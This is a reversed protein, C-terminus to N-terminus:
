VGVRQPGRRWRQHAPADQQLRPRDEPLLPLARGRQPGGPGPAPGAAAPRADGRRQALVARLAAARFRWLHRRVAPGAGPRERGGAVAPHARRQAGRGPVPDPRVESQTPGGDAPSGRSQAWPAVAEPSGPGRPDPRGARTPGAGPEPDPAPQRLRRDLLIRRRRQALIAGTAGDHIGGGGPRSAAQGGGPRLLAGAPIPGLEGAERPRRGLGKARVQLGAAAVLGQGRALTRAADAGVEEQGAGGARRRPPRRPAPGPAPGRGRRQRAPPEGPLSQQLPGAPAAGGPSPGPPSQPPAARLFVHGAGPGSRERKGAGADGRSAGARRKGPPLAQGPISLPAPGAAAAGLHHRHRRRRRRGAIPAAGEPGPPFGAGPGRLRLAQGSVAGGGTQGAAQGSRLFVCLGRERAPPRWPRALPASAATASGRRWRRQRWGFRRGRGPQQLLQRQGARGSVPGAPAGPGPAGSPHRGAAVGTRRPAEGGSAAAPLGRRGGGPDAVPGLRGGGRVRRVAAVRRGDEEPGGGRRSGEEPFPLRALERGRLAAALLLGGGGHVPEHLIRLPPAARQAQLSTAQQLCQPEPSGGAAPVLASVVAGGGKVRARLAGVERVELQLFLPNIFCLKGPAGRGDRGGSCAPPGNQLESAGPWNWFDRGMHSIAELRKHTGAEAIADPLQLPFPLVDRSVCYFAVLRCLDPFGLASSELAFTYDEERIFRDQVSSADREASVRVSLVKRQSSSCKRVLFTGVPERLLIYLASDQELALQLWVSHTLLLRDLVSFAKQPGPPTAGAGQM